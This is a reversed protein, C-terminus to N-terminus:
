LVVRESTAGNLYRDIIEEWEFTNFFGDYNKHKPPANADQKMNKISNLIKELSYTSVAQKFIKERNITYKLQDQGFATTVIQFKQYFQDLPHTKKEKLIEKEKSEKTSKQEVHTSMHEVHTSEQRAQASAQGARSRKEKIEQRKQLNENVRRCRLKDDEKYFLEYEICTNIIDSLENVEMYLDSAIGDLLYPKLEFYSHQHLEEVISWFVSYAIGGHKKLLAKIKLDNRARYDHQFYQDKNEM